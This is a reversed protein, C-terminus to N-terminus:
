KLNSLTHSAATRPHAARAVSAKKGLPFKRKVLPAIAPNLLRQVAECDSDCPTEEDRFHMKDSGMTFADVSGRRLRAVETGFYSILLARVTTVAICGPLTQIRPGTATPASAGNLPQPGDPM